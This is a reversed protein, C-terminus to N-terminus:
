YVLVQQHLLSMQAHFFSLWLRNVESKMGELQMDHLLFFAVLSLFSRIRATFTVSFPSFGREQSFIDVCFFVPPLVLVSLSPLPSAFYPLVFSMAHM